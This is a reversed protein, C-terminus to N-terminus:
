DMKLYQVYQAVSKADCDVVGRTGDSYELLLCYITNNVAKPQEGARVGLCKVRVITKKAFLGM